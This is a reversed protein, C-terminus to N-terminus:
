TEMARDVFFQMIRDVHDQQVHRKDATWVVEPNSFAVMEYSPFYIADPNQAVFDQAVARLVSKSYTNAVVVDHGSFTAAFPVPSVTVVLKLPHAAKAKLYTWFSSLAEFNEHYGTVRLEFRDPFKSLLGVPAINLYRGVERDFWAEVLGLTIILVDAELVKKHVAICRQRLDKLSERSERSGYATFDVWKDSGVQVLSGDEFRDELGLQFDQLITFTNYRHFIENGLESTPSWSLVPVERDHLAREVNRAFCSGAAFFKASRSFPTDNQWDLRLFDKYVREGGQGASPLSTRPLNYRCWTSALTDRRNNALADRTEIVRM